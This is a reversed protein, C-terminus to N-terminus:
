TRCAPRYDGFCGSRVAAWWIVVREGAAPWEADRPDLGFAAFFAAANPQPQVGRM